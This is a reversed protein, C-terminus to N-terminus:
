LSCYKIFFQRVSFPYRIPALVVRHPVPKNISYSFFHAHFSIQIFFSSTCMLMSLQQLLSELSFISCNTQQYFIITPMYKFSCNVVPFIINLSVVMIMVLGGLLGVFCVILIVMTISVDYGPKALTYHEQM